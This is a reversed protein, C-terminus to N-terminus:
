ASQRRNPPDFAVVTDAAGDAAPEPPDILDPRPRRPKVPTDVTVRRPMIRRLARRANPRGGPPATLAVLALAGVMALDSWLPEIVVPAGALGGHSVLATWVTHVALLLAAPRVYRGVFIAFGTLWVLGASTWAAWGEPLVLAILATADPDVVLGSGHAIFYSAILMRAAALAATGSPRMATSTRNM